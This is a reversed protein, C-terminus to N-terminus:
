QGDPEDLCTLVTELLGFEHEADFFHDAGEVKRVRVRPLAELAGVWAEGMREDDTGIIVHVPVRTRALARLVRPANWAYYSLVRGATSVYGRCYAIPYTALEGAAPTGVASRARALARRTEKRFVAQDPGFHTLSILIAKEVEAPAEELYAAVMVSGTSHGVLVVRRHGRRKLWEVWAAVEAVDGEMTHSQVAECALSSRRGDIGLTLTPTLVPLGEEENLADALRRVTPFHHTQLFGHLILVAPRGPEGPLYDALATQGGPMALQVEAARVAPGGTLGLLLLLLFRFVANPRAM